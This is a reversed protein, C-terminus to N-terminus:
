DWWWYLFGSPAVAVALLCVIFSLGYVGVSLLLPHWTKKIAVIVLALPWIFIVSLLFYGFASTAVEAHAHLSSPFGNTGIMKPWGGLSIWM